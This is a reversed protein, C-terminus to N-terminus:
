QIGEKVKKEIEAPVWKTWIEEHEKLFWKAADKADAENEQMYALASSTVESSTQYQKLFQEVEPAKTSFEKNVAITLDQSPFACRYGDEWKEKTYAEDELLTMDYKGTVWTPEWYYGVWPAKDEIAKTISAALAPASGAQFYNYAKDLGYNKIKERLVEDATWGPISGFIRGKNPDEPDKFIEWYKHLDKVSKLDPAIPKIGKKPDGKIVYTPVYLGQKNDSYNISLEVIDGSKIAEQYLEVINGTWIETYVDIDGQRLGLLSTQESGMMETTPYGYGKEIITSAVANHFRISDWGADAFVITEKKKEENGQEKDADTKGCASLLSVMVFLGILMMLFKKHKKIKMM